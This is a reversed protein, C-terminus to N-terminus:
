CGPPDAIEPTLVWGLIWGREARELRAITGPRFRVIERNPDGVLLLSALRALHPLHGVLMLPEAVAEIADQAKGPDYTPELDETERLGQVPELHAALIEATQKARLRTSHRIEAVAVKIRAAHRAIRTVDARGRERLPQTPEVLESEAEGHRVLYIEM